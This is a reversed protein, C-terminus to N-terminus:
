QVVFRWGTTDFCLSLDKDTFFRETIVTAQSESLCVCKQLIM